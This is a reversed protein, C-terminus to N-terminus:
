QVTVLVKGHRVFPPRVVRATLLKGRVDVQVRDATGAPVRALAISQSLTPSFTGSTIEGDGAPTVVRQHSRMVAREALVLGVLKRQVGDARMSELAARGIFNRDTPEFMVTWVLGSELPSTEENMDNGYLNMGAELRLTDRAGLGCSLVGLENLRRWLDAASDAPLMVEFGDEGTYGTRAVFWDGLEAGFFAGLALAAQSDAPSLLSALQARAEPGQVALMALERREAMRVDFAGALSAMWALDKARTGANVVVRFWSETLFYVILDDIVGGSETLMCSYLAKGPQTLRAVDNALLYRLFARVRAGHLDVVCMHSVDFVGAARRV